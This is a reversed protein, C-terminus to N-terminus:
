QRLPAFLRLEGLQVPSHSHKVLILQAYRARVPTFELVPFQGLPGTAKFATNWGSEKSERTKLEYDFVGSWGDRQNIQALSASGIWKPKGFDFHLTSRKEGPATDWATDGRNDFLLSTGWRKSDNDRVSSPTIRSAVALNTQGDVVPLPLADRDLQLKVCVFIPRQGSGRDPLHLRLKHSRASWQLPGGDLRRAATIKAALSPLQLDTGVRDSIFLYVIQGKCTAGGWDGDRYPGGRTGHIGEANLKMWGAFDRLRDADPPYLRGDPMPGLDLLYNGDRAVSYVLDRLLERFPRTPMPQNFVWGSPNIPETMEWPQERDFPGVLNEFSVFDGKVGGHNGLVIAPNTRYLTSAVTAPTNKWKDPGVPEVGDFWFVSLPGYGTALETVIEEYYANYRDHHATNFDPNKWDKPSIQWGLAIGHRRCADAFLAAVDKRYPTQAINYSTAPTKFMCFGDHHKTVFVAYRMGADHALELWEDPNYHVPNFEKYFEDYVEAPVSGSPNLASRRAHSHSQPLARGSSPGWHIFLGFRYSRWAEVAEPRAQSPPTAEFQCGFRAPALEQAAM